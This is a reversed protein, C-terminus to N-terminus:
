CECSWLQRMQLSFKENKEEITLFDKEELECLRADSEKTPAELSVIKVDKANTM